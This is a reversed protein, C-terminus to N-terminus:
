CLSLVSCFPSMVLLSCCGSSRCCVVAASPIPVDAALLVVKSGTSSPSAPSNDTLGTGTLAMAVYYLADAVSWEEECTLMLPFSARARM